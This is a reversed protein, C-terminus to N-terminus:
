GLNWVTVHVTPAPAIRNACELTPVKLPKGINEVVREDVVAGDLCFFNVEISTKSNFPTRVHM